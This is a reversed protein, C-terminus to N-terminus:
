DAGGWGGQNRIDARRCIMGYIPFSGPDIEGTVIILSLLAYFLLGM